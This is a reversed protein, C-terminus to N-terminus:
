AADLDLYSGGSIYNQVGSDWGTGLASTWMTSSPASGSKGTFQDGIAGVTTWVTDLYLQNTSTANSSSVSIVHNGAAITGAFTYDTYSTSGVVM